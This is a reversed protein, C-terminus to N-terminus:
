LGGFFCECIEKFKGSDQESVKCAIEFPEVINEVLFYLLDLDGADRLQIYMRPNKRELDRSTYISRSAEAGMWLMTGLGLGSFFRGVANTTIVAGLKVGTLSSFIFKGSLNGSVDRAVHAVNAMDVRSIFDDIFFGIVREIVDWRLIDRKILCVFRYKDDENERRHETDTFDYGLYGLSVPFSIVGKVISTLIGSSDVDISELMDKAIEKASKLGAM